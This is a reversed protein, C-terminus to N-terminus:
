SINYAESQDLRGDRGTRLRHYITVQVLIPLWYPVPNTHLIVDILIRYVINDYSTLFCVSVCGSAAPATCKTSGASLIFLM